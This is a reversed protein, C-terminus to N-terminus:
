LPLRAQCAVVRISRLNGSASRAVFEIADPERMVRSAAYLYFDISGTYSVRVLRRNTRAMLGRLRAIGTASPDSRDVIDYTEVWLQGDDDILYTELGCVLSKTQYVEGKYTIEDFLGV